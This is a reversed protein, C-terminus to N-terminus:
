KKGGKKFRIKKNKAAKRRLDSKEEIIIPTEIEIGRAFWKKRETKELENCLRDLPHIADVM